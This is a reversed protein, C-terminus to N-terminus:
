ARNDKNDDDDDKNWNEQNDMNAPNKWEIESNADKSRASQEDQIEQRTEAKDWADEIKAVDRGAKRRIDLAKNLRRGFLEITKDIGREAGEKSFKISKISKIVLGYEHMYDDNHLDAYLSSLTKAMRELRPILNNAAIYEIRNNITSLEAEKNKHAAVWFDRHQKLMELWIKSKKGKSSRQRYDREHTLGREIVKYPEPITVRRQNMDKGGKYFITEV